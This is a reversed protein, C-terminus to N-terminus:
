GPKLGHAKAGSLASFFVPISKNKCGTVNQNVLVLVLIISICHHSGLHTVEIFGSSDVLSHLIESLQRGVLVEKVATALIPRPLKRARYM